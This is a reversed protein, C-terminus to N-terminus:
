SGPGENVGADPATEPDLVPREATHGIWIQAAQVVQRLRECQKARLHPWVAEDSYLSEDLIELTEVCARYMGLFATDRQGGYLMDFLMSTAEQAVIPSVQDAVDHLLKDFIANKSHLWERVVAKVANSPLLNSM